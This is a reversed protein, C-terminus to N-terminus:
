LLCWLAGSSDHRTSAKPEADKPLFEQGTGEEKLELSQWESCTRHLTESAQKAKQGVPLDLVRPNPLSGCRAELLCRSHWVGLSAEDNRGLKEYGRVTLSGEICCTRLSHHHYNNDLLESDPAEM